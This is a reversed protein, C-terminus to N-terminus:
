EGSARQSGSTAVYSSYGVYCSVGDGGIRAGRKEGLIKIRCELDSPMSYGIVKELKQRKPGGPLFALIDGDQVGILTLEYATDCQSFSRGAVSGNGLRDDGIGLRYQIREPIDYTAPVNEVIRCEYGFLSTVIRAVFAPNGAWHNYAPLLSSWFLLERVDETEQGSDFDYLDLFRRIHEKEAFGFDFILLALRARAEARIVSSDFPSMLCRSRTEWDDSRSPNMRFGYFFQYPLCDVASWYGVKLVIRSDKGVETGPAPEQEIVEGKYNEYEGVALINVRSIDIGMKSLINLATTYQLPTRRSCFDPMTMASKM